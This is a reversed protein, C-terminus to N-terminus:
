KSPDFSQVRLDDLSDNCGASAPTVCAVLLAVLLRNPITGNM